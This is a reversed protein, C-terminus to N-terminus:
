KGLKIQKFILYVGMAGLAAALVGLTVGWYLNPKGVTILAAIGFGALIFILGAVWRWREKRVSFTLSCMSGPPYASAHDRIQTELRIGTYRTDFPADNSISLKFRKYDVQNPVIQLPDASLRLVEDDDDLSTMAISSAAPVAVGHGDPSHTQIAVAYRKTEFLEYDRRWGDSHVRKNTRRDKLLVKPGPQGNSVQVLSQVRWFVDNEFQTSLTILKDVVRSWPTQDDSVLQNQKLALSAPLLSIWTYQIQKDGFPLSNAAELAAVLEGVIPADPMVFGRLQFHMYLVDSARDGSREVAVAVLHASRTPVFESDARTLMTQPEADGQSFRKKQGYMLLAPVPLRSPTLALAEIQAAAADSYLYRKYEYRIVASEPLALVEHVDGYYHAHTCTDFVVLFTM